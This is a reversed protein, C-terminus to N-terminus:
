MPLFSDADVCRSPDHTSWHRRAGDIRRDERRLGAESFRYKMPPKRVPSEEEDYDCHMVPLSMPLPPVPPRARFFTKLGAPAKPTKPAKLSKASAKKQLANAPMHGTPFPIPDYPPGATSSSRRKPTATPTPLRSPTLNNLGLTRTLKPHNAINSVAIRSPTASSYSARDSRILSARPTDVNRQPVVTEERRHSPTFNNFSHTSEHDDETPTLPPSALQDEPPKTAPAPLISGSRFHSTELEEFSKTKSRPTPLRQVQTAIRELADLSALMSAPLGITLADSDGACGVHRSISPSVETSADSPTGPAERPMASEMLSQYWGPAADELAHILVSLSSSRSLPLDLALRQVTVSRNTSSTRTSDLSPRPERPTPEPPPSPTQLRGAGAPPDMGKLGIFSPTDTLLSPAPLLSHADFLLTSSAKSLPAGTPKNQLSRFSPTTLLLSSYDRAALAGSGLPSLFFTSTDRTGSLSSSPDIELSMGHSFDLASGLPEMDVAAGFSLSPVKEPSSLMDCLSEPATVCLSIEASTPSLFISPALPLYSRSVSSLAWLPTLMLSRTTKRFPYATCVPGAWAESDRLWDGDRKSTTASESASACACAIGARESDPDLEYILVSSSGKEWELHQQMVAACAGLVSPARSEPELRVMRTGQPGWEAWPVVKTARGARAGECARVLTDLPVLHLYREEWPEDGLFAERSRTFGHILELALMARAPDRQFMPHADPATSPYEIYSNIAPHPIGSHRAPYELECLATKNTTLARKTAKNARVAHLHLTYRAGDIVALLTPTLLRVHQRSTGHMHWVTVGTKWNLVMMESFGYSGHRMNWAVLDGLAQLGIVSERSITPFCAQVTPQVAFPHPDFGHSLSAFSCQAYEEESSNSLGVNWVYVLLDDREVVLYAGMDPRAVLLDDWGGIVRTDEATGNFAGFRTANPGCPKIGSPSVRQLPLAHDGWAKRYARVADLRDHLSAPGGKPGDIMGTAGLELHYQLELDNDILQALTSRTERCAQISRSDLFGIIRVQVDEPLEIFSLITM